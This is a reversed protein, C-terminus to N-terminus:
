QLRKQMFDRLYIYDLNTLGGLNVAKVITGQPDPFELQVKSWLFEM